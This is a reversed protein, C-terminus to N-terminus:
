SRSLAIRGSPPQKRSDGPHSGALGTTTSMLVAAGIAALLIGIRRM